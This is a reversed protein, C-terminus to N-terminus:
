RDMDVPLDCTLSVAAASITNQAKSLSVETLICNSLNTIVCGATLLLMTIWKSGYRQDGPQEREKLEALAEQDKFTNLVSPLKNIM